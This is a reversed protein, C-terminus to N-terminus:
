IWRRNTLGRGTTMGKEAAKEYTSDPEGHARILVRSGSEAEDISRITCLGSQELQETVAKNHILPGLCYLRVGDQKAKEQERVAADVARKVSFCFGAHEAVTITHKM